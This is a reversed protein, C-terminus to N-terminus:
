HHLTQLTASVCAFGGGLVPQEGLVRLAGAYVLSVTKGPTKHEHAFVLVNSVLHHANFGAPYWPRCSLEFQAICGHM